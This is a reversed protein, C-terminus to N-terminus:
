NQPDPFLSRMCGSGTYGGCFGYPHTVRSESAHPGHFDIYKCGRRYSADLDVWRGQHLCAVGQTIDETVIAPVRTQGQPSTVLVRDGDQIGRKEADGRHLYLIKPGLKETWPM